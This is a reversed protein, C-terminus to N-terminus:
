KLIVISYLLSICETFFDDKLFQEHEKIYNLTLDKVIPTKSIIKKDSILIYENCYIKPKLYLICKDANYIELHISLHLTNKEDLIREFTIYYTKTTNCKFPKILPIKQLIHDIIM